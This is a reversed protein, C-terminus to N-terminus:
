VLERVASLIDEVDPLAANELARNYPIPVDAAAWDCPALFRVVLNGELLRNAIAPEASVRKFLTGLVQFHDTDRFISM